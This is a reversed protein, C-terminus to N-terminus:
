WKWKYHCSILIFMSILVDGMRRSSKYTYKLNRFIIIGKNNRNPLYKSSKNSFTDLPSCALSCKFCILASVWFLNVSNCRRLMWSKFSLHSFTDDIRLEGIIRIINFIFTSQVLIWNTKKYKWSNHFIHKMLLFFFLTCIPIDVCKLCSKWVSADLDFEDHLTHYNQIDYTSTFPM